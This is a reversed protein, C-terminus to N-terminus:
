SRGLLAALGLRLLVDTDIWHLPTGANLEM